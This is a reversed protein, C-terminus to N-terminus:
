SPLFLQRKEGQLEVEQKQWSFEDPEVTITVTVSWNPDLLPFVKMLYSSSKLLSVRESGWFLVLYLAASSASINSTTRPSQPTYLCDLWALTYLVTSYFLIYFVSCVINNCLYLISYLTSLYIQSLLCLLTLSAIVRTRYTSSVIHYSVTM